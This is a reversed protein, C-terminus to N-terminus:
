PSLSHLKLPYISSFNFSQWFLSLCSSILSWLSNSFLFTKQVASWILGSANNNNHPSFLCSSPFLDLHLLNLSQSIKDMEVRKFTVIFIMSSLSRSFPSITPTDTSSSSPTLFLFPTILLRASCSVLLYSAKNFMKNHHAPQQDSLILQFCALEFCRALSAPHLLIWLCGLGEFSALLHSSMKIKLNCKKGM